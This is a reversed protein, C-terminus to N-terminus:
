QISGRRPDSFVNKFDSSSKAALVPWASSEITGQASELTGRVVEGVLGAGDPTSYYFRVGPKARASGHYLCEWVQPRLEELLLTEIRGGLGAPKGGKEVAVEPPLRNGLLRAHLVRTNNAVLVHDPGLYEIIDKFLRHEIQGTRRHIVMLRSHDRPEVPQHAICELPLEYDYSSLLEPDFSGDPLLFHPKM